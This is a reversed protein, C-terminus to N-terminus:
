CRGTTSSYCTPTSMSPPIVAPHRRALEAAAAWHTTARRGDLWGAAALIFAGTCISVLRGTVAALADILVPPVQGGIDAAGPVVVTDAEALAGLGHPARISVPGLDIPDTAACVRVEYAPRGDALRARGFVEIPVSLDFPIVGDYVLVSVRHMHKM